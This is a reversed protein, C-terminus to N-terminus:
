VDCIRFAQGLSTLPDRTPVFEQGVYGKYGTDLIAKCIATYNLEQTEDIENRGPNGGTHYHVIYDKYQRITRIVDGEMIQMHYIDYLLKFRPSAVKDVLRVGWPTKDCMYDKHNVKSNLLEMAVNIGKKEAYGMVRKLGIACNELGEDDPMGKRNGSFCIVSPIGAEAAFDINKRLEAECRDHNEVRNLCDPIPGTGWTMACTLGHKKVVAFDEPGILEISKLGIRAAGAALEELSLKRDYCWKCASQPINGRVKSEAAQEFVSARASAFSGAAGVAVSQLVSRRTLTIM